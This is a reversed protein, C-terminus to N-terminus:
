NQGKVTQMPLGFSNMDWHFFTNILAQLLCKLIGYQSIYNIAIVLIGEIHNNDAMSNCLRNIMLCTLLQKQSCKMIETIVPICM